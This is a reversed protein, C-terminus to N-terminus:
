LTQLQCIQLQKGSARSSFTTIGGGGRGGGGERRCLAHAFFLFGTFKMDGLGCFSIAPLRWSRHTILGNTITSRVVAALGRSAQKITLCAPAVRFFLCVFWMGTKVPMQFLLWLFTKIITMNIKRGCLRGNYDSLFLKWWWVTKACTLGGEWGGGM